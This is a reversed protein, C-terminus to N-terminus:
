FGCGPRMEESQLRSGGATEGGYRGTQRISFADDKGM